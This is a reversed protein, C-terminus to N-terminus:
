KTLFQIYKLQNKQSTLPATMSYTYNKSHSVNGLTLAIEAMMFINM